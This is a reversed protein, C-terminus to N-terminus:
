QFTQGNQKLFQTSTFKHLNIFQTTVMELDTRTQSTKLVDFCVLSIVFVEFLSFTATATESHGFMRSTFERGQAQRASASLHDVVAGKVVLM